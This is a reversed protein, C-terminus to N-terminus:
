QVGSTSAPPGGAPAPSPAANAPQIPTPSRVAEALQRMGPRVPEVVLEPVSYTKLFSDYFRPDRQPVIFAKHAQGREDVYSLYTRTFLGDRRKSSFAIWRSNSSWSHWAESRDSNIGLKRYRGSGLDMMYLDSSPQYIPFCGYDCMCFLLFRGDPSVRPLLLSRRTREASLVTEPQGWRDSAVDYSIRRLDYRSQEYGDPPVKGRAAWLLPASCFYLYRGDPSWTPYTELRAPDAIGPATKVANAALDYYALDSKLDVVDRVEARAAHFFQRVETDTYVALRGSPHWATYGFKTALKAASGDCSFATGSGYAPGRIGITMRDTHNSRFSHCNLCSSGVPRNHLVTREGYGQLDRECIAIDGWYNYAPDIVRRVLYRDIEERAIMNRVRDYRAWRGGPGEVCVDLDLAQGRHADLLRHWQREPIVIDSSRGAVVIEEGEGAALRVCYRTGPEEVVFNLPAINPPIVCDTYDPRLRPPRGAETASRLVGEMEQRANRCGVVGLLAATGVWLVWDCRKM